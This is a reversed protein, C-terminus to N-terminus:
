HCGAPMGTSGPSYHLAPNCVSGYILLVSSKFFRAVGSSNAPKNCLLFCGAVLLHFGNEVLTGQLVIQLSYVHPSQRQPAIELDDGGGGGPAGM